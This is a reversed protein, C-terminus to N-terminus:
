ERGMRVEVAKGGGGRRGEARGEERVSWAHDGPATAVLWDIKLGRWLLGKQEIERAKLIQRTAGVVLERGRAGVVLERRRERGGRQIGERM